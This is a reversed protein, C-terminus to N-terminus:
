ASVQPPTYLKRVDEESRMRLRHKGRKKTYEHVSDCLRRIRARDTDTIM